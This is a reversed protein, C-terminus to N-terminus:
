DWRSPGTYLISIYATGAIFLLSFILLFMTVTVRANEYTYIRPLNLYNGLINILLSIRKFQNFIPSNLNGLFGLFCFLKSSAIQLSFLNRSWKRTTLGKWNGGSSLFPFVWLSSNFYTASFCIFGLGYFPPSWRKSSRGTVSATATTM